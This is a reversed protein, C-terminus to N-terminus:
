INCIIVPAAGSTPQPAKVGGGGVCVCVGCVCKKALYDNKIKQFFTDRRLSFFDPYGTSGFSLKNLICFWETM